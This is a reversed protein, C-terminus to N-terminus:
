RLNQFVIREWRRISLRLRLVGHDEEFEGHGRMALAFAEAGV